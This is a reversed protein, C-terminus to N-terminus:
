SKGSVHDTDKTREISGLDDPSDVLAACERMIAVAASTGIRSAGAELLRRVEKYERIGGSAKVKLPAAYRCLLRVDEVSAGGSKHFGTSTKVFDAEGEAACRCGLIIQEESLARSELTVKLMGGNQSHAVCATKFITDAVERGLGSVIGGIWAVMDIETAGDDVCRRAEDVITDPHSAGLPFGAVSGVAVGTGSLREAARSVFRPNVFVSAFRWHAAEECLRDVDEPRAEPTLLTHDIYRALAEPQM